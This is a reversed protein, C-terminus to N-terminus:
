ARCHGGRFSTSCEVVRRAVAQTAWARFRAGTSARRRSAYVMRAMLSVRSSLRIEKAAQITRSATHLPPANYATVCKALANGIMESSM